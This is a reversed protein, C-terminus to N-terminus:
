GLLIFEKLPPNVLFFILLLNRCTWSQICRCALRLERKILMALGKQRTDASFLLAVFCWCLAAAVGIKKRNGVPSMVHSGKQSSPGVQRTEDHHNRRLEYFHLHSSLASLNRFCAHAQMKGSIAWGSFDFDVYCGRGFKRM